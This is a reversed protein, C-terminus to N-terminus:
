ILHDNQLDKGMNGNLSLRCGLRFDYPPFNVRHTLIVAMKQSPM